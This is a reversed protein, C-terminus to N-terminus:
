IGAYIPRLERDFDISGLTWFEGEKLSPPREDLRIGELLEDLKKIAQTLQSVPLPFQDKTQYRENLDRQAASPFGRIEVPSECVFYRLQDAVKMAGAWRRVHNLGLGGFAGQCTEVDEARLSLTGKNGAPSRLYHPVNM